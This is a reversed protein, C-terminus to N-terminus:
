VFVRFLKQYLSGAIAQMFRHQILVWGSNILLIALHIWCDERLETLGPLGDIFMTM